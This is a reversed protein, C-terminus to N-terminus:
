ARDSESLRASWRRACGALIGPGTEYGGLDRHVWTPSCWVPPHRAPPAGFAVSYTTAAGVFGRHRFIRLDVIPNKETLEWIVFAIFGVLAVIGLVQIHHDNFWDKNRGEDLMIQLAGVWIM